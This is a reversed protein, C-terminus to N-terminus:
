RVLSSAAFVHIQAPTVIRALGGLFAPADFVLYVGVSPRDTTWEGGWLSGRMPWGTETVTASTPHIRIDWAVHALDVGRASLEERLATEVETRTVVEDLGWEGADQFHTWDAGLTAGREAASEAAHYAWARTSTWQYADLLAAGVMVLVLLALMAWVSAQGDSPPLIFSSPHVVTARKMGESREPCARGGKTKQGENMRGGEGKMRENVAM